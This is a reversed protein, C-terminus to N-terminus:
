GGLASVFFGYLEGFMFRMSAGAQLKLFFRRATKMESSQDSGDAVWQPLVLCGYTRNIRQRHFWKDPLLVSLLM